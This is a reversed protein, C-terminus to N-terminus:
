AAELAAVKTELVEIKALMQQIVSIYMADNTGLKSDKAINTGDDAKIITLDPNKDTLTEDFLEYDGVLTSDVAEIEQAVFGRVKSKNGHLEPNIWDFIKPKFQKFKSLDYTFDVINKKLRSDSLSGISTDDAKLDGNAEIRFREVNNTGLRLKANETNFFTAANNGGAVSTASGAIQMQIGHLSSTNMKLRIVSTAGAGGYASSFTAVVANAGASFTSDNGSVAIGTSTTALKLTNDFFLECAGDVNFNALTESDAKTIRVSNGNVSALRLEGTGNDSVYSNSGDHYLQLDNSNGLKIIANDDMQVHGDIFVGYSKTEFKKSNDHYLEVNGNESAVIMNENGAANKVAFASSLVNLNGTGSDKIYSNSGDHYIELDNSSGIKLGGNDPFALYGEVYAGTSMTEFKKSNNHYLEVAGDPIAKLLFENNSKKYLNIGTDSRLALIGTGTEDILSNAGDHYIELDNGTGLRIKENDGLDIPKALKSSAIAASANIDANLLSGDKVGGTSVQTLAM